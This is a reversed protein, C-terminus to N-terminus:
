KLTISDIDGLTNNVYTKYPEPNNPYDSFYKQIFEERFEKYKESVIYKPFGEMKSGEGLGSLDAAYKKMMDLVEGKVEVTQQEVAVIFYGGLSKYAEIELVVGKDSLGFPGPSLISIYVSKDDKIIDPNLDKSALFATYMGLDRSFSDGLFLSFNTANEYGSIYVAGDETNEGNGMSSRYCSISEGIKYKTSISPAFKFPLLNTAIKNNNSNCSTKLLRQLRDNTETKGNSKTVPASKKSLFGGSKLGQIVVFGAVLFFFVIVAIIQLTTVGKNSSNIKMNVLNTSIM